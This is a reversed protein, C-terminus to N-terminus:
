RTKGDKPKKLLYVDCRDNEYSYKKKETVHSWRYPGRVHIHKLREEYKKCEPNMKKRQWNLVDGSFM